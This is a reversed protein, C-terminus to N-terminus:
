QKKGGLLSIQSTVTKSVTYQTYVYVYMNIYV